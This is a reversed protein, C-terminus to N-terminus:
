YTMDCFIDIEFALLLTLDLHFVCATRGNTGIDELTFCGIYHDDQHSISVFQSFLHKSHKEYSLSLALFSSM